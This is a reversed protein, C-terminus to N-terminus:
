SEAEKTERTKLARTSSGRERERERIVPKRLIKPLKKNNKIRNESYIQTLKVERNVKIQDSQAEISNPVTNSKSNPHLKHDRSCNDRLSAEKTLEHFNLNGGKKPIELSEHKNRTIQFINM